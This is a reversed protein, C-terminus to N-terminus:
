PMQEALTIGDYIESMKVWIGLHEFPIIEDLGTFSQFYFLSTENPRHYVDVLYENQRVLLYYKLSKIRRYQEWKKVRDYLETSDSLVEVIISPNHFFRESEIDDKNCTVVVDPLFYKKGEPLKLLVDSNYVKCGSGKLKSKFAFLINGNIEAHRPRGGAMAVLTGDWYEYRIGNDWEMELYEQESCFSKYSVAPEEFINEM